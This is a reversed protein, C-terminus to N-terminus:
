GYYEVLLGGIISDGEALQGTASGVASTQAVLASGNQDVITDGSETIMEQLVIDTYLSESPAFGLSTPDHIVGINGVAAPSASQMTERVLNMGGDVNNAYFIINAPYHEWLRVRPAATLLQLIQLLKDPTGNSTNIAIKQLIAERYEEDTKGLREEGVIDGCVDLRQGTATFISANNLLDFKGDESEQVQNLVATLFSNIKPKDKFQHLLRGSGIEVVDNITPAM